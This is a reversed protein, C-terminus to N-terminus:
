SSRPSWGSWGTWHLQTPSAFVSSRRRGRVVPRPHQATKQSGRSVRRPPVLGKSPPGMRECGGPPLAPQARCAADRVAKDDPTVGGVLNGYFAACSPSCSPASRRMPARGIAAETHMLPRDAITRPRASASGTYCASSRRLPRSLIASCPCPRRWRVTKRSFM